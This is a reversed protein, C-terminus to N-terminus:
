CGFLTTEPQGNLYFHLTARPIFSSFILDRPANDRYGGLYNFCRDMNKNYDNGYVYGYFFMIANRVLCIFSVM